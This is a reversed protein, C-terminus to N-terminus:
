HYRYHLVDCMLRGYRSSDELTNCHQDARGEIVCASPRSRAIQLGSPLVEQRLFSLADPNNNKMRVMTIHSQQSRLHRIVRIGRNHSLSEVEHKALVTGM